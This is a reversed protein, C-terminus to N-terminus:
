FCIYIKNIKDNYMSHFTYLYCHMHNEILLLYNLLLDLYSNSMAVHSNDAEKNFLV